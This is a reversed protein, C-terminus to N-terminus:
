HLLPKMVDWAIKLFGIVGILIVIRVLYPSTLDDIKDMTRGFKSM